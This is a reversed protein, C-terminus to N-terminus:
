SSAFSSRGAGEQVDERHLSVCDQVWSEVDSESKKSSDGSSGSTNSDINKNSDARATSAQKLAVAQVSLEQPSATIRLYGNVNEKGWAVWHPLPHPFGHTFQSTPLAHIQNHTSQNKSACAHAISYFFAHSM